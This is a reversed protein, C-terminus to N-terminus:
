QPLVEVDNIGKVSAGAPYAYSVYQTFINSASSGWGWVTVGFPNDSSMEHRGNSCGNVDAFNGTVLNIRTYENEGIPMWGDLTGACGLTVDAFQGDVPTRVVVLSTEPYTPDTFLVYKKLFQASPIVNVWEPDGAGGYNDGGTMYAALYFPHEEDQSAVEFPGASNFEAVDGLNIVDPAGNPKNIWTLQTGDVAGVLRWPPTEEQGTRNRYRIATYDSGLAKVPPIQQHAGDCAFGNVPVNLCTAGGFLVVPKDALIPSGTLEQTQAIQMTEGRNLTYDTPVNAPAAAVGNGGVIAVKPQITVTTNDEDGILLLHPLASAAAQSKKYANIGIYNTDWTGSPLLLTASTAAVSGGGYPLMQYAAVPFDTTIHFADGRGTNLVATEEAIAALNGPCAPLGGSGRSLFLIAVEGVALGANADYPDYVINGGQGSPIRAFNEVPLMQGKYEVNIHVPESWTNAIFTAFCAGTGEPILGTKVSWFECGESRQEKYAADCPTDVCEGMACFQNNAACDEAVMDDCMVQTGEDNCTLTCDPGTTGTTEVGMTTSGTTSDSDSTTSDSDGTTTTGTTGTTEGASATGSASSDSDSDTGASATGTTSTATATATATITATSTATDSTSASDDGSCAAVLLASTMLGSSWTLRYTRLM